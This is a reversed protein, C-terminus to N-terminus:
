NNGDNIEIPMYNEDHKALLEEAVFINKNRDLYGRAVVGSNEKFLNPLIGEYSVVMENEFDTITFLFELNQLNRFSNEKVMGGLRFKRETNFDGSQVQSPTLYFDINEQLAKLIFFIIFVLALAFTIITYIRRRRNERIM